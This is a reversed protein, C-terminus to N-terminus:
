KSILSLTLDAMAFSDKSFGMVEGFFLLWGFFMNWPSVAEV